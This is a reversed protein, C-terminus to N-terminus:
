IPKINKKENCSGIKFEHFRNRCKKTETDDANCMRMQFDCHDSPTIVVIRDARIGFHSDSMQQSLASLDTSLIECSNLNIYDNGAGQMRTFRM